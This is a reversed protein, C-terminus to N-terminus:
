YTALWTFSYSLNGHNADASGSPPSNQALQRQFLGFYNREMVWEDYYLPVLNGTGNQETLTQVGTIQIPKDFEALGNVIGKCKGLHLVDSLACPQSSELVAGGQYTIDDLKVGVITSILGEAFEGTTLDTLRIEFKRVQSGPTYPGLFAVAANIQDGSSIPFTSAPTYPPLTGTWACLSYNSNGPCDLGYQVANGHSTLSAMEWVLSYTAGSLAHTLNCDSSTGIQPLWATNADISSQSGWMGVWVAARPRSTLPCSVQPVTWTAEQDLIYSNNGAYVSYASYFPQVHCHQAASVCQSASASSKGTIHTQAAAAPSFGLILLLPLLATVATSGIARKRRM